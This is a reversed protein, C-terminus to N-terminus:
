ISPAITLHYSDTARIGGSASLELLPDKMQDASLGLWERYQNWDARKKNYVRNQFFPFLTRSRYEVHVDEMGPLTAAEGVETLTVGHVYRLVYESRERTVRAIPYWRHTSSNQWALILEM